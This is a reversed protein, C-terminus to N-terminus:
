QANAGDAQLDYKVWNGGGLIAGRVQAEKGSEQYKFGVRDAVIDLDGHRLAMRNMMPYVKGEGAFEIMAEDLIALDNIKYAERETVGSEFPSTVTTRARLGQCGRIGLSPYKRTGWSASGTWDITFGQWEDKSLDLNNSNVGNNLCADMAVFRKLHNLAEVLMFHYQTARYLYIHCDDQYPNPRASSGVERFKALYNRGANKGFTVKYRAESTSAGPNWDTDLMQDIVCQTPRLLYKNPYEDSFHKLLTNTQNKTYDYIIAAVVEYPYPITNHFIPAYHGPTAASPLWYTNSGPDKIDTLYKLSVYYNIIDFMVDAARQYYAVAEPDANPAQPARSEICAGKWLCLEAYLGEFPPVMYNWKRFDSNAVDTVHSPDLWEIWNINRRTSVGDFGTDLLLLCRDTIGEINLKEFGNGKTIDMYKIIPDDFWVAEGYIEGLTKYAWVKIRVASSVLDQWIEDDVGPLNRYEKMKALYDNCAIVVEYYGAPDAYPNGTLDADYNYLSILETTSQESVEVLPGRTETLLIEKDGVAQLRTMIGLFGTYMETDSSIYDEGNLEDDTNPDFFDSCATMMLASLLISVGYIIKKMM